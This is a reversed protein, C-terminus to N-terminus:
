HNLKTLRRYRSWAGWGVLLGGVACIGLGKFSVLLLRSLSAGNQAITFLICFTVITGVILITMGFALRIAESETWDKV